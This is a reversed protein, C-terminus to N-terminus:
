ELDWIIEAMYLPINVVEFRGDILIREYPSLSVVVGKKQDYMRLYALIGKLHTKKIRTAAKCEVPVLVNKHRFIFDIEMGSPSKKWGHLESTKRALEIAVQNELIGGLPKRQVASISDILNIPPVPAERYHRLIGTDFLYRKPLVQVFGYDQYGSM